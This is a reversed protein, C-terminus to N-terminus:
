VCRPIKKVNFYGQSGPESKSFANVGAATHVGSVALIGVVWSNEPFTVLFAQFYECDADM